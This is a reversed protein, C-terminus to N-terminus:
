VLHDGSRSKVVEGTASRDKMLYLYAEAVDEVAAVRGTPLRGALGAFAAEKQEATMAANWLATDVYGPEVANARIPALDLALNRALGQLGAAFYAILSWGPAPKDAVSGTTITLSAENSRPLHRPALKGLILPVNLRLHAAQRIQALSLDALGSITLSDAATLVIHDIPHKTATTTTTTAAATLVADLDQEVSDQSLDCHLSGLRNSAWGAATLTSLAASASRASSGVLTVRAAGAELSAEVVGRGIGSSGGIVVIHKGALKNYKSSSM